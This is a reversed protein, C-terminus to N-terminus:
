GLPGYCRCFKWEDVLDYKAWKELLEAAEDGIFDEDEEDPVWTFCITSPAYTETIITDKSGLNYFSEDAQVLQKTTTRMKQSKLTKVYPIWIRFTWQDDTVDLVEGHSVRCSKKNGVKLCFSHPYDDAVASIFHDGVKLEEIDPYLFSEVEEVM